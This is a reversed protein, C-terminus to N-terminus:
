FPIPNFEEEKDELAKFAEIIMPAISFAIAAATAEPGVKSTFINNHTPDAVHAKLCDIPGKGQVLYQSVFGMFALMALRGNKVEKLRMEDSRLNLPDFPAWALFGSEGTSKWNKYRAYECLGIVVVEIILLPVTGIAYEQAGAEWWKPLGVADTFMIGAVAAMAWRGNTLEGERYWPLAAENAGLRLPDFGFDGPMEGKLHKPPEAGPYWTVRDARAVVSSSLRASRSVPARLLSSQMAFAM